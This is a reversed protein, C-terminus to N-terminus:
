SPSTVHHNEREVKAHHVAVDLVRDLQTAEAYLTDAYSEYTPSWLTERHTGGFVMTNRANNTIAAVDVAIHDITKRQWPAAVRRIAELRCLDDNIDGVASMIQDLQGVDSAWSLSDARAAMSQLQEAHYKANAADSRIDRFTHNAEAQFNWTSSATTPKPVICESPTAAFAAPLLAAIAAFACQRVATQIPIM